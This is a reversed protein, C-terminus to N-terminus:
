AIRLARVPQLGNRAEAKAQRKGSAYGSKYGRGYACSLERIVAKVQEDTYGADKLEKRAQSELQQLSKMLVDENLISSLM